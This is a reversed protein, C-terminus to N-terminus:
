SGRFAGWETNSEGDEATFIRNDGEEWLVAGDDTKQIFKFEMEQGKPFTLNLNWHHAEQGQGGHQMLLAKNPNWEGLETTSGTVYVPRDNQSLVRWTAHAVAAKKTTRAMREVESRTDKDENRPFSDLEM